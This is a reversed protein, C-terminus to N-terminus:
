NSPNAYINGSFSCKKMHVAHKILSFPMQADKPENNKPKVDISTISSTIELLLPFSNLLLLQLLAVTHKRILAFM